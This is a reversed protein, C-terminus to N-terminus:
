PKTNMTNGSPASVFGSNVQDPLQEKNNIISLQKEKVTEALKEANRHLPEKPKESVASHSNVQPLSITVQVSFGQNTASTDMVFSIAHATLHAYGNTELLYKLRKKEESILSLSLPEGPKLFSKGQANKVIAAAHDDNIYFSLSSLQFTESSAAALDKAGMTEKGSPGSFGLLLLCVLPALCAFKWLHSRHTKTKNMMQIRKKLSPFLLNNALTYPVAGSVKLLLYQYSKRSIGKQLVADDAIFELNQRIAQKLLWAFPNYWQVICILEALLMDITHKQNVHVLEHAIIKELEEEQYLTTDLYISNYFSFPAAEGPLHYLKVEVDATVLKALKRTKQLSYFRLLFRTVFFLIGTVMAVSLIEEPGWGNTVPPLDSLNKVLTAPATTFFFVRNFSVADSFFSFTIFPVIFAFVSFLLLFFRNWQYYTIRRLMAYYFLYGCSLCCTLKLLYILLPQM